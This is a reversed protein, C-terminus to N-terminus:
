QKKYGIPKRQQIGADAPTNKIKDNTIKQKTLSM